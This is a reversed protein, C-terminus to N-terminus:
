TAPDLSNGHKPFHSAKSGKRLLSEKFANYISTVCSAQEVTTSLQVNCSFVALKSTKEDTSEVEM